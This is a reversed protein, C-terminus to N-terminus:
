HGPPALVAQPVAELACVTDRAGDGPLVTDACSVPCRKAGRRPKQYASYRRCCEPHAIAEREHLRNM